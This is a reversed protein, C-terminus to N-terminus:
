RTEPCDQTCRIIEEETVIIDVRIDHSDAPVKEAVQAHFALAAKRCNEKGELYADYYGGGYGIRGGERDFATGPLIVLTEESPPAAKECWPEPEPISLFGPCLDALSSILCFEMRHKGTVRPVATKKGRRLSEAIIRRTDAEDGISVYCYICRAEEYEQLSFLHEAIKEEAPKRQDEPTERRIKRYKERIAKKTETNRM